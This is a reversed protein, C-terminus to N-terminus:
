ALSTGFTNEQQRTQGNSIPKEFSSRISAVGTLRGNGKCSSHSKHSIIDKLTTMMSTQRKSKAEEVNTYYSSGHELEQDKPAAM